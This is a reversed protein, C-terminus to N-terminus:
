PKQYDSVKTNGDIVQASEGSFWQSLADGYSVLVVVLPIVIAGIMLITGVPIDGKQNRHLHKSTSKIKSFM